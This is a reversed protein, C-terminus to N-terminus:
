WRSMRFEFDNDFDEMFNRLKLILEPYQEKKSNFFRFYSSINFFKNKLENLTKKIEEISIGMVEEFIMKEWENHINILSYDSQSPEYAKMWRYVNQYNDKLKKIDELGKVFEGNKNLANDVNKDIQEISYSDDFIPQMNQLKKVAAQYTELSNVYQQYENNKRHLPSNQNNVDSTILFKQKLEDLESNKEIEPNANLLITRIKNYSKVYNFDDFNSESMFQEFTESIYEKIYYDDNQNKEDYEDGRIDPIQFLYEIRVLNEQEPNLEVRALYVGSNRYRSSSQTIEMSNVMQQVYSPLKERFADYQSDQMKIEKDFSFEIIVEVNFGDNSTNVIFNRFYKEPTRYLNNFFDNSLDEIEKRVGVFNKYPEGDFYLGGHLVFRKNEINKNINKDVWNRVFDVFSENPTGYVREVSYAHNNVDKTDIYPKLLLRAIPRKIALKENQHRDDDSVLYAIITGSSIDNSVFRRNIGDSQSPYNVGKTGMNMCSTWSRDTSMGAVDYPHRSIVVKLKKNKTSARMPDHIFSKLVDSVKPDDQFKSLVKGIKFPRKLVTDEKKYIFGQIYSNKTPITYDPLKEKVIGLIKELIPFELTLIDKSFIDIDYVLRDKGKFATNLQEIKYAGSNRRTLKKKKVQKLPIAENLIIYEKFTIM